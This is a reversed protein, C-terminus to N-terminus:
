DFREFQKRAEPVRGVQRYIEGLKLYAIARGLDPATSDDERALEGLGAIATDLLSQQM